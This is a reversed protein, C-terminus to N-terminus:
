GARLCVEGKEEAYLLVFVAIHEMAMCLLKKM